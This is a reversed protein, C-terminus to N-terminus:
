QRLLKESYGKSILQEYIPKIMENRLKATSDMKEGYKQIGDFNKQEFCKSITNTAEQNEKVIM